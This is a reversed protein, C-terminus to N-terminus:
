KCGESINLWDLGLKRVGYGMENLYDGYAMLWHSGRIERALRKDDGIIRIDQQTRCIPFSPNDEVVGKLGLWRVQAADPDILTVLQGRPMQVKPSAGYDSEYHTLIRVPEYHRGDMRRPCACHACTLVGKHPFTPNHMFVPKGTVLRLLVAAPHSAFDSECFAIYGEDQMLSLALCATTEAIPMVTSMCAGITFLQAQHLHLLEKFIRYLIFARHVFEKDTQLTVGPQSLYRKASKELQTMLRSDARCQRIRQELEAYPVEIIEMGFKERCVQPAKPCGKGGAKGITVARTGVFNKLGYLARLRWLIDAYDDVVVDDVTVGEFNRYVDYEFNPGPVRLFRNSANEYWDYVPGSRHRVFVITHRKRTICPDLRNAGAAYLLLVDAPSTDRVKMGEADSRATALPLIELPFEAKKALSALEGAIRRQEERVAEETHVGGWNRWSTRPKRTEIEHRLLPQIVLKRGVVIQPKDPDWPQAWEERSQMDSGRGAVANLVGASLAIAGAGVFERRNMCTCCSM